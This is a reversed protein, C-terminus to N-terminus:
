TSTDGGLVVQAATGSANSAVFVYAQAYQGATKNHGARSLLAGGAAVAITVVGAGMQVIGCEWGEPLTNPLTLTVAGSSNFVIRRRNDAAVATYSATKALNAQVTRDELTDILDHMDQATIGGAVGIPMNTKLTAITQVTM